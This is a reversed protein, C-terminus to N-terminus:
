KKVINLDILSPDLYFKDINGTDQTNTTYEDKNEKDEFDFTSSPISTPETM